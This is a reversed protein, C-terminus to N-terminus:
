LLLSIKEDFIKTLLFCMSANVGLEKLYDIKETVHKFQGRESADNEGGFFDGVHLEYIV